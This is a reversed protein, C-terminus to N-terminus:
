AALSELSKACAAALAKADIPKHVLLVGQLNSLREDAMNGTILVRGMGPAATQLRTLTEMGNLGPMAFDSIVVDYNRGEHVAEIVDAGREFEEVLAAADRLQESLVIRVGEDDDVLAIKKGDFWLLERAWRQTDKEASPSRAPLLIEVRTGKGPASTIKLDGGSQDVFGAVMSLGLGTGKGAGKTTFFPETVKKLVKETMGSGTDSVVIRLRQECEAPSEAADVTVDIKGGEPMADRANIVLNMIALQLQNRDAYIHLGGDACNWTASVGDGLAHDALGSVADCLENPDITAPTLDQKRAFAMMRKVLDTGQEAAYRMQDIVRKESPGLELRRDLVNIGGLMAALLNNFDHAVGGTLQGLADLKCRSPSEGRGTPQRPLREARM